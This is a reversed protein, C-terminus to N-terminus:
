MSSAKSQNFLNINILGIQSQFADLTAEVESEPIRINILGIQSQFTNM